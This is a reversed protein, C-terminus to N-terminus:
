RLSWPRAISAAVESWHMPSVAMWNKWCRVLLKVRDPWDAPSIALCSGAMM